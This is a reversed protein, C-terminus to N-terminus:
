DGFVCPNSIIKPTKHMFLKREETEPPGGSDNTDTPPMGILNSGKNTLFDHNNGINNMKLFLVSYPHKWGGIFKLNAKQSPQRSRDFTQVNEKVGCCGKRSFESQMDPSITCQQVMVLFQCFFESYIMAANEITAYRM